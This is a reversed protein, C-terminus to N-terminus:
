PSAARRRWRGRSAPQCHGGRCLGCRRLVVQQLRGRAAVGVPRLPPLQCRGRLPRGPRCCRCSSRLPALRSGGAAAGFAAEEPPTWDRQCTSSPTAAHHRPTDLRAFYCNIFFHFYNVGRDQKTSIFNYSYAWPLFTITSFPM